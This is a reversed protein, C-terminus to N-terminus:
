DRRGHLAYYRAARARNGCKASCWERRPHDKLFYLVCGPALCVNLEDAQSSGLFEITSAAVWSLLADGDFEHQSGAFLRGDVTNVLAPIHPARAASANVIKIADERSGVSSAVGARPDGTVHAALYRAADRLERMRERGAGTPAIRTPVRDGLGVLWAASGADTALSDKIGHRDAWVTNMLEIPLAQQMVPPALETPEATMASM